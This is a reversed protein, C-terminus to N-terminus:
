WERLIASLEGNHWKVRAVAIGSLKPIQIACGQDADPEVRSEMMLDGTISFLQLEGVSPLGVIQLLGSSSSFSLHPAARLLNLASPDEVFLASVEIEEEVMTIHALAATSDDIAAGAGSWREFLMGQPITPSIAVVEGSSYYGTGEGHHVVLSYLGEYEASIALDRTPMTVTTRAKTSDGIASGGGSWKVFRQSTSPTAEVPVVTSALYSGSGNGGTVTLSYTATPTRMTTQSHTWTGENEANLIYDYSSVLYGKGYWPDMVQYNGNDLYGMGVVFHGGGASWGWRIVFPHQGDIESRFEAETLAKAMNKPTTRWNLLIKDIAKSNPINEGYKPHGEPYPVSNNGWSYNWQNITSDGFAWQVIEPQTMVEGYFLLIAASSGAWCWQTKEQTVEPVDLVDAFITSAFLLLALLFSRSRRM